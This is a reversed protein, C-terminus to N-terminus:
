KLLVTCTHMITFYDPGGYQDGPIFFCVLFPRTVRIEM